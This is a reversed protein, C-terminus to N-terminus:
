RRVTVVRGEELEALRRAQQQVLTELEHNAEARAERIAALITQATLGSTRGEAVAAVVAEVVALRDAHTKLSVVPLPAGLGVLPVQNRNRKGGKSGALRAIRRADAPKIDDPQPATETVNQHTPAAQSM